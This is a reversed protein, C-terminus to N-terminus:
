VVSKRDAWWEKPDMVKMFYTENLIMAKGSDGFYEERYGPGQNTNTSWYNFGLIEGETDKIWNIFIVTHGSGSHRWIQVFDGPEVQNLDTVQYGLGSSELAHKITRRDGGVGYWKRRFEEMKDLSDLDGIRTFGNAENYAQYAQFFVEFTIGSCYSRKQEDGKIFLTDLYTLDTTIGYYGKDNVWAYQMSGDTPYSKMIELVYENFSKSQEEAAATFSCLLLLAFSLILLLRKNM